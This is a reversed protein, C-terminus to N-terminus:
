ETSLERLSVSGAIWAPYISALLSSAVVFGILLGVEAPGASLAITWGLGDPLISTIIACSAGVGLAIGAIGGAVGLSLGEMLKIMRIHGRTAGTALLLALDQAQTTASSLMLSSLAVAGLLATM